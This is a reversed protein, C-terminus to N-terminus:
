RGTKTIIMETGLDHFKKWLGKTELQCQVRDVEPPGTSVSLDRSSADRRERLDESKRHKSSREVVRTAIEEGGMIADISFGKANNSTVLADASKRPDEESGSAM